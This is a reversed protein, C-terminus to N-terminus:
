PRFVLDVIHDPSDYRLSPDYSHDHVPEIRMKTYGTFDLVLKILDLDSKGDQHLYSTETLRVCFFDRDNYPRIEILKTKETVHDAYIGSNVILRKLTTSFERRDKEKNFDWKPM